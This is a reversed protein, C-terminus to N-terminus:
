PAEVVHTRTTITAAATGTVPLLYEDIQNVFEPGNTQLQTTILDAPRLAPNPVIDLTLSQPLGVYRDVLTQAAADAQAATRLLPSAYYRPAAGFPGSWDLPGDEIYALQHGTPAAPDSGYASVINYVGERTVSRSARVLTGTAGPRVAFVPGAGPPGDIPEVSLQGTDTFRLCCGRQDALQELFAYSDDEIVQGGAVTAADPDYGGAAVPAWTIPMPTYIFMGYGDTSQGSGTNGNIIRQFAYRHTVTAPFQFPNLVRNQIASAARDYATIRLPGDPAEEQDVREVRYYGLPVFEQTGDGFDIGRQVFLEVSYPQLLDWHEGPVDLTLTRKIAGTRTMRVEGGLVKLEVGAPDLGFPATAFQSLRPLARARCVAEHTGSLADLFRASV